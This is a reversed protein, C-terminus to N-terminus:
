GAGGTTGGTAPAALHERLRPMLEVFNCPRHRSDLQTALIGDWADKCAGTSGPLAFLYTGDAVGATARSQITSTGITQYSLWRFLEGFGPIHKEVVRDMAEPTVDRGTVGTGGTTIVADVGADAIWARLHDAIRDADDPVIARDALVHGAATLREVLVDGSRDEALTRTDSVTLVAIRVPLFPLSPDIGAM